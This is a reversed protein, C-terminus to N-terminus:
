NLEKGGAAKRNKPLGKRLRDIMNGDVARHIKGKLLDIYEQHSLGDAKILADYCREALLENPNSALTSLLADVLRQDYRRKLADAAIGVCEFKHSGSEDWAAGHIGDIITDVYPEPSDVWFCLTRLARAPLNKDYRYPVFERILEIDEAQGARGLTYIMLNLPGKLNKLQHRLYDLDEQIPTGGPTFRDVIADVIKRINDTM